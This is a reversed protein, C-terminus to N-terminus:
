TIRLVDEAARQQAQELVQKDVWWGNEHLVIEGTRAMQNLRDCVQAALERDWTKGNLGLKKEIQYISNGPLVPCHHGRLEAEIRWGNINVIVFPGNTFMVNNEGWGVIQAM